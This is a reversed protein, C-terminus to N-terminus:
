KKPLFEETYYPKLDPEKDLLKLEVYSREVTRLGQENFRGDESFMPMIVDYNRDAVQHSVGMVKMAVQATEERHARMYAISDFWGKLFRRVGEPNKKIIDKSAWIAHAVFSGVYDGAPVVLHGRGAEELSFGLGPDAMAADVQKTQMAAIDVPWSGGIVTPIPSDAGWGKARGLERVLWDTLSGATSVGIKKRKLDEVQRIGSSDLTSVGLDLPRDAMNAVALEPAGRVLFIFETGGGLGIDVSGAAMGQHLKASGAFAVIEIELQQKSFLGHAVGVDVPVWAYGGATAKGVTIKDLAEAPAAAGLLLCLALLCLVRARTMAGEGLKQADEPPRAPSPLASPGM